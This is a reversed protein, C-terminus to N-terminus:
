GVLEYVVIGWRKRDCGLHIATGAPGALYMGSSPRGWGRRSCLLIRLVVNFLFLDALDLALYDNEPTTEVEGDDRDRLSITFVSDFRGCGCGWCSRPTRRKVCVLNSRRVSESYVSIIRYTTTNSWRLIYM